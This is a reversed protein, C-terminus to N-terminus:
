HPDKVINRSPIKIDKGKEERGKKKRVSNWIETEKTTPASNRRENIKDPPLPINIDMALPESSNFSHDSFDKRQHKSYKKNNNLDHHSEESSSSDSRLLPRKTSSSQEQQYTRNENKKLSQKINPTPPPPMPSNNRAIAAYTPTGFNKNLNVRARAEKFTLHEKTKIYLIEKEILYRPCTRSAVSHPEQCHICKIPRQCTEEKHDDIADDGCRSCVPIPRRCKAGSHGYQQCNFCRRPLPIYPRVREKLGTIITINDPPNPTNFTLILTATPEPNPSKPNRTIRRCAIVGYDSLGEAVEEETYNKLLSCTIVGQSKNHFEHPTVTIPETLLETMTLLKEGQQENKVEITWSKNQLDDSMREFEGIYAKLAKDVRFINAKAINGEGTSKVTFFKTFNRPRYLNDFTEYSNTSPRADNKGQPKNTANRSLKKGSANLGSNAQPGSVGELIEQHRGPPAGRIVGARGCVNSGGDTSSSAGGISQNIITYDM